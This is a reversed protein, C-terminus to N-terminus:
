RCIIRWHSAESGSKIDWQPVWSPVFLTDNQGCLAHLVVDVRGREQLLHIAIETFIENPTKSYDVPVAGADGANVLGLLAYVKDRKDTASCNRSRHLVDLLDGAEPQSAPLWRLVSPAQLHFTM